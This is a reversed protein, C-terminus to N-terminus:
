ANVYRIIVRGSAGSGGGYGGGGGGGRNAAGSGGANGAGFTTAGGGNGTLENQGGAGGSFGINSGTISSYLGAGGNNSNGGVGSAGGAGGHLSYDDMGWSGYGGRRGQGATGSGTNGQNNGAGSGSGCGGSIGPQHFGVTGRGGGLSTISQFTSSNGQTGSSATAAVTVSHTGSAVTIRSEASSNAGSTAGVVSTRFGGGGGGGSTNSTSGGGGGGGGVILYEVNDLQVPTVFSGSSTFDHVRYSGTTTITGGSPLDQITTTQYSISETGSPTNKVRITVVTGAALDRVATPPTVIFTGAGISVNTNTGVLTAGNYYTVDVYDTSLATDVTVSITRDWSYVISGSVSTIDPVIGTQGFIVSSFSGIPM